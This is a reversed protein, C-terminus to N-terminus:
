FDNDNDTSISIMGTPKIISTPAQTIVIQGPSGYSQQYNGPQSPYPPHSPQTHRYSNPQFNTQPHPYTSQPQQMQYSENQYHQTHHTQHSDEYSPPATPATPAVAISKAFEM